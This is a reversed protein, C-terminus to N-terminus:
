IKGRNDITESKSFRKDGVTDTTKADKLKNSNFTIGQTRETIKLYSNRADLRELKTATNALAEDVKNKFLEERVKFDNRIWYAQFWILILLAFSFSISILTLVRKNM